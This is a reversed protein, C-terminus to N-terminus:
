CVSTYYENDRAVRVREVLQAGLTESDRVGLRLYAQLQKEGPTEMFDAFEGTISLVRAGMAPVVCETEPNRSGCFLKCKVSANRPSQNILAVFPARDDALVIPFFTVREASLVQPQGMMAGRERAFLRCIHKTGAESSVQLHGHKMGSELKCSGLLIDLDVVGVRGEPIQLGVDNVLVGDADFLRLASKWGGEGARVGGPPILFLTTSFFPYTCVWFHSEVAAGCHPQECNGSGNNRGPEENM